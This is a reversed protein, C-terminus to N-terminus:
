GLHYEITVLKGTIWPHYETTVLKGTIWPHYETTALKGTIWPHYEAGNVTEVHEEIEKAAGDYLDMFDAFKASPGAADSIFYIFRQIQSHRSELIM